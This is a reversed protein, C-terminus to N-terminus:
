HLVLPLGLAHAALEEKKKKQSYTSVQETTDSEKRSEPSYVVLEEKGPIKWALISSHSATEEKLPDEQGPSRGSVPISGIDGPRRYQLSEKRASGDSFWIALCLSKVNLISNIIGCSRRM